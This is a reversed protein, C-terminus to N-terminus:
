QLAKVIKPRTSQIRDYDLPSGFPKYIVGDLFDYIPKADEWPMMVGELATGGSTDGSMATLRLRSDVSEFNNERIFEIPLIM